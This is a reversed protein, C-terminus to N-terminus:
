RAHKPLAVVAHATAMLHGDKVQSSFPAELFHGPHCSATERGPDYESQPAPDQRESDACGETGGENGDADGKTFKPTEPGPGSSNNKGLSRFNELSKGPQCSATERGPDYESQPALDQRESDACGEIGGESGEADGRKFKPGEHEPGNSNTKRLSRLNHLSKPAEPEGKLFRGM